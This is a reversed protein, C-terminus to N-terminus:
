PAIGAPAASGHKGVSGRRLKDLYYIDFTETPYKAAEAGTTICRIEADYNPNHFYVISIRDEAPAEAPAEAPPIAVRHLTSVWRDNTWRAMADGINCIFAGEPRDIDAWAGRRLKVQLGGPLNDGRLITLSGYDSHEGARRQGAAADIRGPYRILRLSSSHRDIMGDFHTQPQGLALAFAQMLAHALQEMVEFYGSMATRLDPRSAPWLNPAFFMRARDCTFYPEDPVDLPGMAFSEQLDPPTEKGLTYALSRDAVPYWGRSARSEPRAVVQKDAEPLAFFRVAAARVGEIESEPVGHGTIAFFGTEICATDIAEAVAMRDEPGGKLFPEFDITPVAAQNMAEIGKQTGM